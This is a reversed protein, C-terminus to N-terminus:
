KKFFGGTQQPSTLVNAFFSGPKKGKVTNQVNQTLQGVTDSLHDGTVKDVSDIKKIISGGKFIPSNYIAKSADAIKPAYQGVRSSIGAGPIAAVTSLAANKFHKNAAADDGTLKSFAGRGGAVVAGAADPLIGIGPALGAIAAGTEFNDLKKNIHDGVAGTINSPDQAIESGLNYVDYGKQITNGMPGMWGVVGSDLAKKGVDKATSWADSLWSEDLSVDERLKKCRLDIYKEILIKRSKKM